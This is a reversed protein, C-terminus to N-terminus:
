RATSGARGRRSRFIRWRAATRIPSAPTTSWAPSARPHGPPSAPLPASCRRKAGVDCRLTLAQGRPLMAGLEKLAAGDRDLGVV